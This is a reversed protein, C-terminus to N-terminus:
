RAQWNLESLQGQALKVMVNGDRLNLTCITSVSEGNISHTLTFLLKSGDPSLFPPGIEQYTNKQLPVYVISGDAESISIDDGQLDEVFVIRTGDPSWSANYSDGDSIVARHSGDPWITYVENPSDNFLIKNGNPSWAINSYTGDTITTLQRVKGTTLNKILLVGSGQGFQEYALRKGEPAWSPARFGGNQPWGSVLTENLGNRKVTFIASRKQGTKEQRVFAIQSGDSSWVPSSETFQVLGATLRRQNSGDSNMLHLGGDAHVFAIKQGDPSWSAGSAGESTLQQKRGGNQNMLWINTIGNTTRSFTIKGNDGPFTAAHAPAFFLAGLVVGTVGFVCLSRIFKM